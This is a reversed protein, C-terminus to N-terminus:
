GDSATGALQGAAASSALHGAAARELHGLDGAISAFTFGEELRRAADEGTLTHIGVPKGVADAADRVSRLAAEFEDSIAPDAPYAAGLSLALDAPGIYLADIGDTAAIAEVEALGQSTEIMAIVLIERNVDAPRPGLRLGARLPGFSRTGVPAYRTSAALRAAEAASEVLPIIIGRAGLDLAQGIDSPSKSPVRVIGATDTGDIVQLAQAVVPYTFLGHQMDLCLYDYGVRALKEAAIPSDLLMWYGVSREGGRLKEIQPHTPM